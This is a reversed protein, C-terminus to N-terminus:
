PTPPAVWALQTEIVAISWPDEATTFLRLGEALHREAAELDGETLAITGLRSLM